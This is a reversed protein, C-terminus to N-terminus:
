NWGWFCWFSGWCFENSMPCVRIGESSCEGCNGPGGGIVAELEADDLKENSAIEMTVDEFSLEFGHAKAFDCTAKIQADKDKPDFKCIWDRWENMLKEDNGVVEKFEKITM